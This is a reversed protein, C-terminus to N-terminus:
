IPVLGVWLGGGNAGTKGGCRDSLLIKAIQGHQPAGKARDKTMWVCREWRKTGQRPNELCVGSRTKTAIRRDAAPNGSVTEEARCGRGIPVHRAARSQGPYEIDTRRAKVEASRSGHRRPRGRNSLLSTAAPASMPPRRRVDAPDPRRALGQGAYREPRLHVTTSFGRSRSTILLDVTRTREDAGCKGKRILCKPVRRGPVPRRGLAAQCCRSLLPAAVQRGGQRFVCARDTSPTCCPERPLGRAGMRSRSSRAAATRFPFCRREGPRM